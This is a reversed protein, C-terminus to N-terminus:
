LCYRYDYGEVNRKVTRMYKYVWSNPDTCLEDANLMTSTEFQTFSVEDCDEECACQEGYGIDAMLDYFCTSGFLDCIEMEGKGIYPFNWPTCGCSGHARELMCEFRCGSRTYNAFIKLMENEDRYRCARDDIGLAGQLGPASSTYAPTIRVRTITGAKVSMAGSKVDFPNYIGSLSIKFNSPKDADPQMYPRGMKHADLIFKFGNEMGTGSIKVTEDSEKPHFVQSFTNMYHNDRAMGKFSVANFTQCIGLNTPMPDFAQCEPLREIDGTRMRADLSEIETAGYACSVLLSNRINKLKASETESFTTSNEFGLNELVMHNTLFDKTSEEIADNTKSHLQSYKMVLMLAQLNSGFSKEWYNCCTNNSDELSCENQGTYSADQFSKWYGSYSRFLEADCGRSILETAPQSNWNEDRELVNIFPPSKTMLAPVDLLSISDGIMGATLMKLYEHIFKPGEANGDLNNQSILWDASYQFSGQLYHAFHTILSGKLGIPSSKSETM